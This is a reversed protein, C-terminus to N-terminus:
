CNGATFACMVNKISTFDANFQSAGQTRVNPDTYGYSTVAVVTNRVNFGGTPAASLPAGFNEVWPGGSSGGAMDSGYEFATSGNQGAPIGSPRHDSSDVRQMIQCGDFNCPYGLSTIATDFLHGVATNFKFGTRGFVTKTVGNVSQDALQIIGFDFNNVVTGSSNQYNTPVFAAAWNWTGYPRQAALTPQSGDYGPIFQWNTFYHGSGYMCHGATVILRNGIISASCQFDGVGQETFFLKGVSKYPGQKNIGVPGIRGRSFDLNAAGFSQGTVGTRVRDIPKAAKLRDTTWYTGTSQPTRNVAPTGVPGAAASTAPVKDGGTVSASAVYGTTALIALSGVIAVVRKWM